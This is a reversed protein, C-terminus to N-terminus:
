RVRARLGGAGRADRARKLAGLAAPVDRRAHHALAQLVLVEIVSGGREGEVAAPLLRGLLSLAEDLATDDREAHYRALLLRALTLHEYERLYSLEDGAHLQRERAWASADVWSAAGSGYGHGCRPFRGSTRPSTAPM